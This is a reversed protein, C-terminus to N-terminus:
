LHHFESISLSIFNKKYKRFKLRIMINKISVLEWHFQM